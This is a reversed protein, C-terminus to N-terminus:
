ERQGLCWIDDQSASGGDIKEQGDANPRDIDLCRSSEVTDKTSTWAWRTSGLGGMM